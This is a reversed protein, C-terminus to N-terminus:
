YADLDSALRAWPIRKFSQRLKEARIKSATTFCANNGFQRNEFKGNRDQVIQAGVKRGLFNYLTKAKTESCSRALAKSGARLGLIRFRRLPQM